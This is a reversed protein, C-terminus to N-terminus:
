RGTACADGDDGDDSCPTLVAHLHAGRHTVQVTRRLPRYGFAKVEVVLRRPSKPVLLPEFVPALGVDESNISVHAGSKPVSTVLLHPHAPRYIPAKVSMLTAPRERAIQYTIWGAGLMVIAGIWLWWRRREGALGRTDLTNLAEQLKENLKRRAPLSATLEKSEAELAALEAHLTHLESSM